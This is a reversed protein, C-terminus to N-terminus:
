IINKNHTIITFRIIQILKRYSRLQIYLNNYLSIIVEEELDFSTANSYALRNVANAFPTLSINFYKQFSSCYESITKTKDYKIPKKTYHKMMSLIATVYIALRQKQNHERMARQKPQSYYIYLVLALIFLIIFVIFIFPSNKSENDSTSDHQEPEKSPEPPENSPEPPEPTPTPEEDNQEDDQMDDNNQEPSPPVQKDPMPATADFPVWGFGSLYVETWAHADRGTVRALGDSDPNAVFGEVYRAPVGAMRCLLTMASAFYSCYGKREVFLFYTVFDNQAPCEKVDISYSYNHQLFNMIAMAKQYPTNSKAIIKDKLDYVAQEIHDPIQLYQTQISAYKNDVLNAVRDILPELGSKGAYISPATITYSDKPALNRTIFVEGIENFYPVMDGETSLSRNFAPVFLTSHVSNYLDIKHSEAKLTGDDIMALPYNELLYEKRLNKWRISNFLFRSTPKSNTFALGTYYDKTVGRLYLKKNTEVTLIPEESIQPKGGFRDVGFPYYGYDNLSFIEREENFFLYDRIKQKIDNALTNLPKITGMSYPIIIFTLLVISIGVINSKLDFMRNKNLAKFIVAIWAPLTYLYQFGYAIQLAIYMLAVVVLMMPIFSMYEDCLVRALLVSILVIFVAFTSSYAIFINNSGVIFYALTKFMNISNIVFASLTGIAFLGILLIAIIAIGVLRTIRNISLLSIIVSLIIILMIALPIATYMAFCSLITTALGSAFLIAIFDNRLNHILNKMSM